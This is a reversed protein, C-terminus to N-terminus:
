KVRVSEPIEALVIAPIEKTGEIIAKALRHWGDIIRDDYIRVPYSYDAEEIQRIHQSLEPRATRAGAYGYEKIVDIVARTSVRKGRKDTWGEDSLGEEFLSTAVSTVPLSETAHILKYVDYRIDNFRSIHSDGHTSEFPIERREPM